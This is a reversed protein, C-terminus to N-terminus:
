QDKGSKGGETIKNLYKTLNTDQIQAYLQILEQQKIVYYGWNQWKLFDTYHEYIYLSLNKDNKQFSAKM